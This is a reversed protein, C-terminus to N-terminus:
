PLSPKLIERPTRIEITRYGLQLNISNYMKIKNLNVIHKFNWSALIDANNLTALAIHLADNFSKNTLAGHSIYTKALENAKDTTKIEIKFHQPVEDPKSMVLPGALELEVKVLDSLVLRNTGAKFQEFLESSHEQFVKDYCGGIVSTDTYINLM